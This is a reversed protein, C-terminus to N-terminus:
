STMTCKILDSLTLEPVAAAPLELCLRREARAWLKPQPGEQEKLDTVWCYWKLSMESLEWIVASKAYDFSRIASHHFHRLLM